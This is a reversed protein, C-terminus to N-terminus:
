TPGKRDTAPRSCVRRLSMRLWAEPHQQIRVREGRLQRFQGDLGTRHGAQYELAAPGTAAIEDLGASGMLMKVNLGEIRM